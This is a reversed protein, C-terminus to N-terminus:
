RADDRALAAVCRDDHQSVRGLSDDPARTRQPLGISAPVALTGRPEAHHRRWHADDARYTQRRIQKMLASSGSSAAPAGGTEVRHCTRLDRQGAGVRQGRACTSHAPPSTSRWRSPQRTGAVQERSGVRRERESTADVRWGLTHRSSRRRIRSETVHCSQGCFQVNGHLRRSSEAAHRDINVLRRCLFAIFRRLAPAPRRSRNRSTESEGDGLVIGLPVLALRRSCRVPIVMFAIGSTPNAPTRSDARCSSSGRSRSDPHVRGSSRPWHSHRVLVPRNRMGKPPASESAYRM